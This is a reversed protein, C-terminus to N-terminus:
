PVFGRYELSRNQLKRHTYPGVLAMRTTLVYDELTTTIYRLVVDSYYSITSYASLRFGHWAHIIILSGHNLFSQKPNIM